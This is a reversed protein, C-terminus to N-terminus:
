IHMNGFALLGVLFTDSMLNVIPYRREDVKACRRAHRRAAKSALLQTKAACGTSTATSLTSAPASTAAARPELHVAPRRLQLGRSPRWTAPPTDGQSKALRGWRPLLERCYPLRVSVHGTLRHSATRELTRGM